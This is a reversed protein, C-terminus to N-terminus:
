IAKEALKDMIIKATAEPSLKEEWFLRSAQGLREIMGSKDKLMANAVTLGMKWDNVQIVPIDKYYSRDPLKESIVVCGARMSEYIRFSEPNRWGRPCLSIKSSNLLSLYTREDYGKGFDDTFKYYDRPHLWHSFHNVLNLKLNNSYTSIGILVLKPIKSLLAALELRNRNLCGIFSINHLRENMPVIDLEPRAYHGLPISTVHDTDWHYQSFIHHYTTKLKEFQSYKKECASEILVVKKGMYGLDVAPTEAKDNGHMIFIYDDFSKMNESLYIMMRGLHTDKRNKISELDKDLVNDFEIHESSSDNLQQMEQQMLKKIEEDSSDNSNFYDM